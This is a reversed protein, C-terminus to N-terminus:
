TMTLLLSDFSYSVLPTFGRNTCKKKAVFIIVFEVRLYCNAYFIYTPLM